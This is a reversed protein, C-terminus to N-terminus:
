LLVKGITQLNDNQSVTINPYDPNDSKLIIVKNSIDLHLRKCYVEDNYIFIGVENHEVASQEKVFVEQGNSLTPSMSDGSIKIVHDAKATINNKEYEKLEYPINDLLLNGLGASARQEYVKLNIIKSTDVINVIQKSKEYELIHKILSKSEKNLQKYIQLFYIDDPSLKNISQTNNSNINLLYDASTNLAKSLKQITLINPERNGNEYNAITVDSVGVLKGLNAQTIKLEKRRKKLRENFM